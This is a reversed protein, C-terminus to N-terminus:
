GQPPDIALEVVFSVFTCLPFSFGLLRQLRAGFRTEGEFSGVVGLNSRGKVQQTSASKSGSRFETLICAVIEM